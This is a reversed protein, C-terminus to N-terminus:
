TRQTKKFLLFSLIIQTSQWNLTLFPTGSFCPKKWDLLECKHQWRFSSGVTASEAQM